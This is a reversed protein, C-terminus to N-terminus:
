RMFSSNDGLLKTGTFVVHALGFLSSGVIALQEKETTAALGCVTVVCRELLDTLFFTKTTNCLTKWAYSHCGSYGTKGAHCNGYKPGVQEDDTKHM